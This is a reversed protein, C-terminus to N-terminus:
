PSSCNGILAQSNKAQTMYFHIFHIEMALTMLFDFIADLSLVRHHLHHILAPTKSIAYVFIWDYFIESYEVRKQKIFKTMITGKQIHQLSKYLM